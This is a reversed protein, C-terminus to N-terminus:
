DKMAMELKEQRDKDMNVNALFDDIRTMNNDIADEVIEVRRLFQQKFHNELNHLQTEMYKQLKESIETYDRSKALKQM